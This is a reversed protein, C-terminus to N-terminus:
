KEKGETKRPKNECLISFKGCKERKETEKKREQIICKCLKKRRSIKNSSNERRGIVEM